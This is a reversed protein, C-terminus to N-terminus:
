RLSLKVGGDEKGFWPQGAMESMEVFALYELVSSLQMESNRYGTQWDDSVFAVEIGQRMLHVALSAAYSVLKEFKEGDKARGFRDFVLRVRRSDEAAYERTKLTATKASAKWHVHRASDSPIYDRITYLDYGLGREFRQNQGQIDLMSISITEQPMIEPYCICGADVRVDKGKSFFGFPYRSSVIVKRMIFRGRRSLMGQGAQAAQLQSRVVPVYFSGFRFPSSAEPEITVSFTPFFRKQNTIQVAIPFPEGAFCHTPLRVDLKLDRFNLGSLFGSLLLVALLASLVMYLLNNSTNIAAFVVITVAGFYIWGERTVQYHSFFPLWDWDVGRALKPVFRVGVWIAIILALLASIGASIVRGDRGAASSYLASLMAVTLLGLSTAFNKWMTRHHDRDQPLFSMLRRLM